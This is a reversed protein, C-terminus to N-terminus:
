EVSGGVGSHVLSPNWEFIQDYYGRVTRFRWSNRRLRGVSTKRVPLQETQFGLFSTKRLLPIKPFNHIGIVLVAGYLESQPITNRVDTVYGKNQLNRACNEAFEAFYKESFALAIKKPTSQVTQPLVGGPKGAQIGDNM